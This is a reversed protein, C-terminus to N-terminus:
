LHFHQGLEISLVFLLNSHLFVDSFTSAHTAALHPLPPFLQLVLYLLKRLSKIKAQM